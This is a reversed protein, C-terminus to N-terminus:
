QHRCRLTVRRRRHRGSDEDPLEQARWRLEDGEAAQDGLSNATAERFGAIRGDVLGLEEAHAGDEELLLVGRVGAEVGLEERGDVAM